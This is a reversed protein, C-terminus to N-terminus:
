SSIAARASRCRITSAIRSPYGGGSTRVSCPQRRSTTPSSSSSSSLPRRESVTPGSRWTATASRQGGPSGDARADAAPAPAAGGRLITLGALPFVLVGPGIVIGLVIELVVSALRVGPLLGLVFPVAFAVAM